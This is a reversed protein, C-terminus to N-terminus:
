FPGWLASQGEIKTTGVAGIKTTTATARMTNQRQASIKNGDGDTANRCTQIAHGYEGCMSCKRSSKSPADSRQKRKKPPRGTPVRVHPPRLVAGDRLKSGASAPSFAAMVVRPDQFGDLMIKLARMNNEVLIHPRFYAYPDKGIVDILAM